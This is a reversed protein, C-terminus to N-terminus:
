RHGQHSRNSRRDTLDGSTGPRAPRRTGPCRRRLQGANCCASQQNRARCGRDTRGTRGVEGGGGARGRGRRGAKRRAEVLANRTQRLVRITNSLETNRTQLEATREDVKRELQDAAQQIEQNRQQLLDLMKDFEGALEGIEDRSSVPGIRTDSGHRTAAVVGAMAELPRFISKAGLVALVASLTMLVIFLGALVWFAQWLETRFPRELFGAYLMGVRKGRYDFIPEYSSIYWDNVVFARDIWTKGLTLVHERVQRSVRTGLAREGPGHPVNTSIRVDDLFVTVTGISNKPLSGAGYVLDRIADVLGFNRNLLIGGDLVAIVEGKLNRVPYAVRIMMGREEVTRTTPAARPTDLLPLAVQDALGERQLAEKDFIEIGYGPVGALARMVLDSRLSRADFGRPVDEHIWRTESDVLHLFSYAGAARLQQILDKIEHSDDNQLYTRFELSEALRGIQDLYDKQIRRFVDDAVSLDTNVKIFLQQYSFDKGWYIALILAVPMVLVIPFLVLLLLKYRVTSRLKAAIPGFLGIM